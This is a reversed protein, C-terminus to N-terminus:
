EQQTSPNCGENPNDTLHTNNEESLLPQMREFKGPLHKEGQACPNHEKSIEILTSPILM